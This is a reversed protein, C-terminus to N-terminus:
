GVPMPGSDKVGRKRSDFYMFAVALVILCIGGVAILVAVPWTVEAVM